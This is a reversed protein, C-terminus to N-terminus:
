LGNPKSVLTYISNGDSQERCQIVCGAKRLDSIRSTYKAAILSLERLRAPGEGLRDLIKRNQGSLRRRAHSSVNPDTAPLHQILDFLPTDRPRSM